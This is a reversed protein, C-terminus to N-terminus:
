GGKSAKYMKYDLENIAQKNHRKVLHNFGGGDFAVTFDRVAESYYSHSPGESNLPITISGYPGVAVMLRGTAQGVAQAVPCQYTKKRDGQPLRKGQYGFEKRLYDVVDQHLKSLAV